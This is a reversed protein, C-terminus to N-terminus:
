SSSSRCKIPARLSMEEGPFLNKRAAQSSDATNFSRVLFQGRFARQQWRASRSAFIQISFMVDLPVSPSEGRDIRRSFANSKRAGSPGPVSRGRVVIGSVHRPFDLLKGAIKFNLFAVGHRMMLRANTAQKPIGAEGHDGQSLGATGRIMERGAQHGTGRVKNSETGGSKEETLGETL